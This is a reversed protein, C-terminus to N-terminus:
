RSVLQWQQRLSAFGANIDHWHGSDIEAAAKEIVQNQKAVISRYHDPSPVTPLRFYDLKWAGADWVFPLRPGWPLVLTSKNGAISETARALRNTELLDLFAPFPSHVFAENGFRNILSTQLTKRARISDVFYPRTALEEPGNLYLTNVYGEGDGRRVSESQHLFVAKPGAEGPFAALTFKWGYFSMVSVFTAIVFFRLLKARIADGPEGWVSDPISPSQKVNAFARSVLEFLGLPTNEVSYTSLALALIAVPSAIGRGLMFKRLKELARTTRKRAAEESIGFETGIERLSKNEYFRLLIAIRDAESLEAVALDLQEAVLEWAKAVEAAAMPLTEQYLEDVSHAAETEWRRRRNQHSRANSALYRAAKFLWGTLNVSRKVTHAKNALTLFVNSSVEQALLPDSCQRLAVSYVLQLHRSVLTAFASESENRVYEQLLDWDSRNETVLQM